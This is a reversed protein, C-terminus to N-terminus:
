SGVSVAISNFKASVSSGLVKAGLYAVLAVAAIILAYEVMTAGRQKNKRNRMLM